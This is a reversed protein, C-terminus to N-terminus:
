NKSLFERLTPPTNRATDNGKHKSLEEDLIFCHMITSLAMGFVQMFINSIFYSILLVAALITYITSPKNEILFEWETLNFYGLAVNAACIICFGMLVFLSGLGGLAAFRLANRMILLLADKCAYCFNKGNIAIQIYANKNIFKIIREVCAVYCQVCKLVM